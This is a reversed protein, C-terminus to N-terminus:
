WPSPLPIGSPYPDFGIKVVGASSGSSTATNYSVANKDKVTSKAAYSGGGGGGGGIYAYVDNDGYNDKVQKWGAGGGGGYGGGGAGGLHEGDGRDNDGDGGNGPQLTGGSYGNPNGNLFTPRTGGSGKGGWGGVGDGGSVAGQAGGGGKGANGGKGSHDSVKGTEDDVGDHGAGSVGATLSAASNAIGGDGGRGAGNGGGGGGSGGALLIVNNIGNAYDAATQVLTSCGGDGGGDNHTGHNGLWYHIVTTGYAARFTAVTTIMMAFGGNGAQGGGNAGNGGQAGWAMIWLPTDETAGSAQSLYHTLDVSSQSAPLTFGADAQRIVTVDQWAVDTAGLVDIVRVFVRYRGNPLSFGHRAQDCTIPGHVERRNSQSMVWFQYRDVGAGGSSRRADVDIWNPEHLRPAARLRAKLPIPLHIAPAVGSGPVLERM